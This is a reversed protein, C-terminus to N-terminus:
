WCFCVFLLLWILDFDVIVVFWYEDNLNMTTRDYPRVTTRDYWKSINASLKQKYEDILQENGFLRIEAMAFPATPCIDVQISVSGGLCICVDVFYNYQFEAICITFNPIPSIALENM